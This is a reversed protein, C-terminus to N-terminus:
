LQTPYNKGEYFAILSELGTRVMSEVAEQTYFAMHQTMIVNPFQRLYAMDRNKLIDSRRDEHYIGGENEFVDLALAGIKENEVNRILAQIEMLEGRACNVLVVGEKMRSISEENIMHRTKENLPVHLSIVDCERYLTDRPVYEAIRAAEEDVHSSSCLLRCGFGKLSQLVRKGIKGTGLIGVTLSGLQRGMLGELSYDNVQGRWLAPKYKRIAMLILMVTYDAVGDPAYSANGLRFGLQKAYPVDIHDYGVTRTSIYKIGMSHLSDLMDADLRSRGLITVGDCGMAMGVTEETLASGTTELRIGYHEEAWELVPMEDKRTEYVAIKM